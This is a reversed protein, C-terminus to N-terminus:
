ESDRRSRGAPRSHHQNYKLGRCPQAPSLPRVLSIVPKIRMLRMLILNRSSTWIISFQRSFFLFVLYLENSVFVSVIKFVAQSKNSHIRFLIDLLLCYAIMRFGPSSQTLVPQRGDQVRSTPNFEKSFIELSRPLYFLEDLIWEKREVM